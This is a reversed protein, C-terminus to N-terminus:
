VADNMIDHPGMQQTSMDSIKGLVIRECATAMATAACHIDFKRTEAVKGDRLPQLTPPVYQMYATM